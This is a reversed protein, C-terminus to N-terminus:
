AVLKGCAAASQGGAICEDVIIKSTIAHLIPNGVESQRTSSWVVNYDVAFWGNRDQLAQVWRASAQQVKSPHTWVLVVLDSLGQAHAASPVLVVVNNSLSPPVVFRTKAEAFTSTELAIGHAAFLARVQGVTLVGPTAAAAGSGPAAAGGGVAWVALALLARPAHQAVVLRRVWAV